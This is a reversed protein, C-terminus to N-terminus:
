FLSVLEEIGWAKYLTNLRKKETPCRVFCKNTVNRLMNPNNIHKKREKSLLHCYVVFRCHGNSCTKKMNM